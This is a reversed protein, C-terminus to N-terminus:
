KDDSNLTGKIIKQDWNYYLKVEEFMKFWM